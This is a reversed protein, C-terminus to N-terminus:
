INENGYPMFVLTGDLYAEIDLEDLVIIGNPLIYSGNKTVQTKTVGLVINDLGINQLIRGCEFCKNPEIWLLVHPLYIYENCVCFAKHKVSNYPVFRNTYSHTHPPVTINITVTGQKNTETYQTELYYIGENLETSFTISNGNDTINKNIAKMGLSDSYLKVDLADTSSLSFSYTGQVKIDLKVMAAKENYIMKSSDIYKSYAVDTCLLTLKDTYYNMVYKLANFADLKKSTYTVEDESYLASVDYSFEVSGNLIAAKIQEATLNPNISKLMAAVGVVFPTAQSTGTYYVYDGDKSTSYINCGPAFIDVWDGYNSGQPHAFGTEVWRVVTNNDTALAGVAIINNFDFNAPYGPQNTNSNGAACVVLGTYASLAAEVCLMEECDLSTFSLNLISIGSEEAYNIAAAINSMAAGRDTPNKNVYVKLSVLKVGWCVGAVGQNNNGVASIIGAIHTGHGDTDKLSEGINPEPLGQTFDRSLDKDVVNILDPHKVNTNTTDNVDCAIGSDIVGVLVEPSGTTFSWCRPINSEVLGWQQSSYTDNSVLNTDGISNFHNESLYYDPGAYKVVDLSILINIADLVKQKTSNRLKLRLIRNYEKPHEGRELSDKVKTTTASTLDKVEICGIDQFDNPSYDKLSLSAQKTLILLVIDSSFEDNLTADCYIKEEAVYESAFVTKFNINLSILCIALALIILSVPKKM